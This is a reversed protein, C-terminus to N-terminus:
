YAALRRLAALVDDVNPIVAEELTPAYPIHTDAAAVRMIPGDLQEFHDEAITAAIEAGVGGTKNDEHVILVKNTKAVSRAITEKDMPVITRLDVVEVSLGDEEIKEAAELALHVGVGYTIVSIDSGERKVDAVSLPVTYDDDPVEGKVRRYSKKHEFFIVPDPDRISSKLLGKCDYPTSPIVIKLGPVHYFLAEVSQSHYLGGHVGAGFPARVVIPCGFAGNSRYRIKAAENVIQDFAPHIYDAFQIEAVPRLGNMAAGIAVGAIGLEALPTDIVREAGFQKQLGDTARFVGGHVGVDEGLVIVSPDREMEERLADTVAEILTKVAL